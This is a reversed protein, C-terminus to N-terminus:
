AGHKLAELYRRSMGDAPNLLLAKEFNDRAQLIEGKEAYSIGLLVYTSYFHMDLGKSFILIKLAKDIDRKRIYFSALINYFYPNGKSREASLKFSEEAQGFKKAREYAVGLNAYSMFNFLSDKNYKINTQFFQIEDQWVFNESITLSAYFIIFFLFVTTLCRKVDMKLKFSTIIASLFILLGAYCFYLNNEPLLLENDEKAFIYNFFLMIFLPLYFWFLGFIILKNKRLGLICLAIIFVLFVLSVYLWADQLASVAAISRGMRLHFPIVALFTYISMGKLLTLFGLPIEQLDAAAVHFGSAAAPKLYYWFLFVLIFPIYILNKPKTNSYKFVLKDLIILFLICIGGIEKSLLLLFSFFLSLCYFFAKLRGEQISKIFTICTLLAFFAVLYGGPRFYLDCEFYFGSQGWLASFCFLCFLRDKFLLPPILISFPGCECRTLNYQHYPLRVSETEM